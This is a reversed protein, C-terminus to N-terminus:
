SEPLLSLGSALSQGGDMTIYEGTLFSALPSSLYTALWGLECPQGTRGLPISAVVRSVVEAGMDGSMNALFGETVFIGPGVANVRIGAPAWERALTKTLGYVGARAAVSHAIGPLGRALGPILINTIAGGHGQRLMAQGAARTVRFTGNLNTDVVAAWGRDSLAEARAVFQGGANNILIDIHGHRDLLGDMLATVQQPDRIDTPCAWADVGAAALARAAENLPGPRRAALVVAAGARGLEEAIARGLGTGGGTVLAVRGHLLDPHFPAM